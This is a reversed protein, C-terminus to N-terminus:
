TLGGALLPGLDSLKQLTLVPLREDGGLSTQQRPDIRLAITNVETPFHGAARRLQAYPTTAGTIMLAISVDPAAHIARRALDTLGHNSPEARAFMDLIRLGAQTGALHSGALATVEQEDRIARVAVSAAASIATEYQDPELFSNVHSDVLLCVHSRRTDLFQRVLFKGPEGAAAKASSRWHIYRRDDGPEYERLAHFALDSMSLDRTTTGELDRLLGAGLPELPVTIPHVFIELRKTWTVTRKLLGFPDGRVTIAPGVPYVGRRDTPVVFLEEHEAGASLFPLQYRVADTAIPLELVIPLLPTRAINRIRVDGAAPQGVTVREPEATITVEIRARGITLLAAAAILALAGTALVMMEAWGLRWGLVWAFVALGCVTWGLGTVVSLVPSVRRSLPGAVARADAGTRRVVTAVSRIRDIVAM